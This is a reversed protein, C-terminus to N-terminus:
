RVGSPAEYRDMLAVHWLSTLLMLAGVRVKTIDEIQAEAGQIKGPCSASSASVGGWPLWSCSMLCNETNM